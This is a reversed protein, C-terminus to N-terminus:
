NILPKELESLKLDIFIVTAIEPEREIVIRFGSDRVLILM